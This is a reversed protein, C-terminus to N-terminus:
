QSPLGLGVAVSSMLCLLALPFAAATSIYAIPSWLRRWPSVRRALSLADGAGPSIRQRDHPWRKLANHILSVVTRDDADARLRVGHADTLTFTRTARASFKVPIEELRVRRLEALDLTRLGFADTTWYRGDPGHIHRESHTDEDV